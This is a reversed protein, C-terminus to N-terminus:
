VASVRNEFAGNTSRSLGVLFYAVCSAVAVAVLVACLLQAHSPRAAPDFRRMGSAGAFGPPRDLGATKRV